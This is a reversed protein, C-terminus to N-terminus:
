DNLSLALFNAELIAYEKAMLMIQKKRIKETYEEFAGERSPDFAIIIKTSTTDVSKENDRVDDSFRVKKKTKETMVDM